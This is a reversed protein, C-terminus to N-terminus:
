AGAMYADLDADLQSRTKAMYEDLDKDLQSKNVNKKRQWQQLVGQNQGPKKQGQNQFNARRGRQNFGRQNFNRQNVSKNNSNNNRRRNLGRGGFRAQNNKAGGRTSLRNNKFLKTNKNGFRNQSVRGSRNRTNQRVQGTQTILNRIKNSNRGRRPKASTMRTTNVFNNRNLRFRPASTQPGTQNQTPKNTKFM